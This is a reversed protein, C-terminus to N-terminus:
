ASWGGDIVLEAGTIHAAEDSILFAVAAAIEDAEAYSGLPTDAALRREAQPGVESLWRRLPGPAAALLAAYRHRQLERLREVADARVEDSGSEPSGTDRSNM